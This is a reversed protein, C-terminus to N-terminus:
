TYKLDEMRVSNGVEHNHRLDQTDEVGNVVWMGHQQFDTAGSVTAIGGAFLVYFTLVRTMIRMIAHM